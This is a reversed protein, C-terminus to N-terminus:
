SMNAQIKCADAKFWVLRHRGCETMLQMNEAATTLVRLLPYANRANM